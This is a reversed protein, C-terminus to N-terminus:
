VRTADLDHEKMYAVMLEANPLSREFSPFRTAFQDGAIRAKETEETTVGERWKRRTDWVSMAERNHKAISDCEFAQGFNEKNFAEHWLTEDASMQLIERMSLEHVTWSNREGLSKLEEHGKGGRSSVKAMGATSPSDKVTKGRFRHTAVFQNYM